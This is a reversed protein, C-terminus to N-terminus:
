KWRATPSRAHPSCSMVRLQATVSALVLLSYPSRVPRFGFFEPYNDFRALLLPLPVPAPALALLPVTASELRVRTGGARAGALDACRHSARARYEFLVRGILLCYPESYCGPFM